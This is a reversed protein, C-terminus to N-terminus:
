FTTISFSTQSPNNTLMDYAGSLADVQDDHAGMPFVALEDIFARNWAAKRIRLKGANVRSAAPQARTYKDGVPPKKDLTYGRLGPRRLLYDLQVIGAKEAELRIRTSIGDIAANQAIGKEVDPMAQQVRYIDLVYLNEEKDIGLKLGVTYDSHKKATVALDYFRVIENCEPEYDIVQIQTTDFLAEGHPIPSQQYLAAFSYNNQSRAKELFDIDFREPWLAEGYGRPDRPHKNAVDVMIAPLELIEWTEGNEQAMSEKIRGVTDDMNWRTMTILIGANPAQRTYFVDTYWEWKNQRITPSNAEAADKFPDDISGYQFGFGTLGGGVGACKYLGDYNVIEFIDSNRLWTGQSTSRINKSYLETDPFLRSYSPSDIVRQVDRNFRRAL